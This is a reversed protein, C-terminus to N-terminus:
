PFPSQPTAVRRADAERNESAPEPPPPPPGNGSSPTAATNADTGSGSGSGSGSGDGADADADPADPLVSGTGDAEAALADNQQEVAEIQRELRKLELWSTLASVDANRDPADLPGEFTIPVDARGGDPLPVALTLGSTLRWAVLDVLANELTLRAAAELTPAMARVGGAEIALDADFRSFDLADRDLHRAFASELADSGRAETSELARALFPFAGANLTAIRGDEVVIRGMGDLGGVLNAVTFGSTGARVTLGITGSMTAKDPHPATLAALAANELAIEAELEARAGIRSLTANGTLSGGAAEASLASITLRDPRTALDFRAPGLATDGLSLRDTAIAVDLPKLPM